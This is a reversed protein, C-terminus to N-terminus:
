IEERLAIVGRPCEKVCLGCGKCYQELILYEEGELGNKQVAMDPCYYFCNDCIICQGCIFCREAEQFAQEESLGHQVEKFNNIREPVALSSHTIGPKIPFYFTNIEESYVEGGQFDPETSGYGFSLAISEAAKKGSGLASSVYREMSTLDGGAFVGELETKQSEDVKLLSDNVTLNENLSPLAPETGVAVIVNDVEFSFYADKVPEPRPRGSADNEGLVMKQLVLKSLGNSSEIKVPSVLFLFEIGEERAELIEIEQCPMQEETRRYAITVKEAGLRRAVRAADVATNGGGVVIVNRGVAPLDGSNFHFLFDLGDMVVGPINAIQPLEKSRQAGISIFIVDFQKQLRMYDDAGDIYSGNHVKIGTQLLRDIEQDLIKRPLRYPPIGYRMLGGVQKHAEFIEVKYGKLTLHYAASLGAPGGGIVAITHKKPAEKEPLSWDKELALDSVYRELLKISIKEDLYARNCSEECPHHCVRGTVSPFPNNAVLKLWSEHLEGKRMLEMWAPIAGDVPCSSHCPSLRHQYVPTASRWTGTNIADTWLTTWTTPFMNEPKAM